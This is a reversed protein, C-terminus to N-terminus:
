VSRSTCGCSNPTSRVIGPRAALRAGLFGAFIWIAVLALPLAALAARAIEM